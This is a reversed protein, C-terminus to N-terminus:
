PLGIKKEVFQEEQLYINVKLNINIAKQRADISHNLISVHQIANFTIKSTKALHLEL